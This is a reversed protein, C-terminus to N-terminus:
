FVARATLIFLAALSLVGIFFVSFRTMIHNFSLHILAHAVRSIAFAWAIMVAPPSVSNTLFLILCLAFFLVPLEFQNGYSDGAQKIWGQWGNKVVDKMDVKGRAVSGVRAWVLWFGVCVMLGTQVTMPQFILSQEM